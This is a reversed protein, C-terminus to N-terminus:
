ASARRGRLAAVAALGTIVLILSDPEPVPVTNGTVALLTFNQDGGTSVFETLTGTGNNWNPTGLEGLLNNTATTVASNNSITFVGSNVDYPTVTENVVEWIAVQVAASALSQNTASTIYNTANM